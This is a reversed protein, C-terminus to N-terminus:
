EDYLFPSHPTPLPSHPTPPLSTVEKIGVGWERSGVGSEESSHPHLFVNIIEDLMQFVLAVSGVVRQAIVFAVEDLKVVVDRRGVVFPAAALDVDSVDVM